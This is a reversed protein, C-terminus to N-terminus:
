RNLEKFKFSSYDDIYNYQKLLNKLCENLVQILKEEDAKYDCFYANFLKILEKISNSDVKEESNNKGKETYDREIIIINKPKDMEELQTYYLYYFTKLYEFSLKDSKNFTLILIDIKTFKDIIEPHFITLFDKPFLHRERLSLNFYYRIKTCLVFISYVFLLIGICLTMKRSLEPSM